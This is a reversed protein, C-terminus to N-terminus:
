KETKPVVVLRGNKAVVKTLVPVKISHEGTDPVKGSRMDTGSSGQPPSESASPASGSWNGYKSTM